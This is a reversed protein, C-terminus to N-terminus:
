DTQKVMESSSTLTQLKKHLLLVEFLTMVKNYKRNTINYIIRIKSEKLSTMNQNEKHELRRLLFLKIM